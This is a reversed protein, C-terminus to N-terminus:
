VHFYSVSFIEILLNNKRSNESRTLVQLNWPVHLGCVTRGRLPIIHDVTWGEGRRQAEMYFSEIQKRQTNTLWPPTARIKSAQYAAALANCKARNNQAWKAVSRKHKEKLSPTFEVREKYKKQSAAYGSSKRYEASHIKRYKKRYELCKESREYIALRVKNKDSSNHIVACEVCLGSPSYREAIHGRKCVQGTFYRSVGAAKAQHLTKITM